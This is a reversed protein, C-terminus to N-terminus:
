TPQELQGLGAIPNDIANNIQSMLAIYDAQTRMLGKLSDHGAM